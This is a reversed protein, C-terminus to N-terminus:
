TITFGVAWFMNFSKDRIKSLHEFLLKVLLISNWVLRFNDYITEHFKV